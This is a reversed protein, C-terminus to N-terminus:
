QGDVGIILARSGWVLPDLNAVHRSPLPERCRRGPPLGRPIVVVRMTPWGPVDSSVPGGGFVM